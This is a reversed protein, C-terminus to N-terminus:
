SAVRPEEAGGSFIFVTFAERSLEILSAAGDQQVMKLPSRPREGINGPGPKAMLELLFSQFM